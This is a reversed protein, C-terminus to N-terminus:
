PLITWFETVTVTAKLECCKLLIHPWLIQFSIKKVRLIELQVFFFKLVTSVTNCCFNSINKECFFWNIFTICRYIIENYLIENYWSIFYYEHM